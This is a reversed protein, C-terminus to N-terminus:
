KKEHNYYDYYLKNIEYEGATTPELVVNYILETNQVKKDLKVAISGVQAAEEIQKFFSKTNMASLYQKIKIEIYKDFDKKTIEKQSRFERFIDKCHYLFIGLYGQSCEALYDLANDSFINNGNYYLEIHRAYVEKIHDNEFNTIKRLFYMEKTRDTGFEKRSTIVINITQSSTLKNLFKLLLDVEKQTDDRKHLLDVDDVALLISRFQGNSISVLLQAQSEIFDIINDRSLKSLTWQGNNTQQNDTIIKNLFEPLISLDIKDNSLLSKVNILEKNKEEGSILPDIDIMVYEVLRVDKRDEYNNEQSLTSIAKKLLQFIENLVTRAQGLSNANIYEIWFPREQKELEVMLKKMYHSKGVRSAGHIVQIQDFDIDDHFFNLDDELESERNIFLKDVEENYRPPNYNFLKEIRIVNGEQKDDISRFIARQGTRKKVAKYEQKIQDENKFILIAMAIIFTITM